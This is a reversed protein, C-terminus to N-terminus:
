LNSLWPYRKVDFGAQPWIKFGYSFLNGKRRYLQHSVRMLYDEESNGYRDPELAMYSSSVYFDAVQALKVAQNIPQFGTVLDGRLQCSPDNKHIWSMYSRLEGYSTSARNSFLLNLTRGFSEAYWSIREVLLRCGWNYMYPPKPFAKGDGQPPKWLAVISFAFDYTALKEMSARRKNHKLNRFHLPKPPPCDLLVRLDDVAHSLPLDDEEKVIVAGLVFWESSGQGPTALNIFGEDGAEDIYANFSAV